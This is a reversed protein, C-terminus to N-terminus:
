ESNALTVEVSLTGNGTEVFGDPFAEAEAALRVRRAGQLQKAFEGLAM